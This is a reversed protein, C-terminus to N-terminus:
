RKLGELYRSLGHELAFLTVNTRWIAQRYETDLLQSVFNGSREALLIRKILNNLCSITRMAIAVDRSKMVKESKPPNM